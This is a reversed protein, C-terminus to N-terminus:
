NSTGTAVGEGGILLTEITGADAFLRIRQNSAPNRNNKLIVIDDVAGGLLSGPPGAPTMTSDDWNVDGGVGGQLNWSSADNNDETGIYTYTTQAFASTVLASAFGLLALLHSHINNKM